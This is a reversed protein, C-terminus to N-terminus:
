VRQLDQPKRIMGSGNQIFGFREYFRSLQENTLGRPNGFQKATLRIETNQEDAYRCVIRMLETAHGYGPKQSYLGILYMSQSDGKLRLSASAHSFLLTVM